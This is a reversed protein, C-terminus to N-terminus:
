LTFGQACALTGYAYQDSFGLSSNDTHVITHLDDRCGLDTAGTCTTILDPLPDENDDLGRLANTVYTKLNGIVPSTEKGM